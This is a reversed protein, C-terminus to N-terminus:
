RLIIPNPKPVVPNLFILKKENSEKNAFKINRKNM